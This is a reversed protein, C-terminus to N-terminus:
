CKNVDTLKQLIRNVVTLAQSVCLEGRETSRTTLRMWKLWNREIHLHKGLRQGNFAEDKTPACYRSSMSTHVSELLSSEM